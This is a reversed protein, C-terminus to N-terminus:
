EFNYIPPNRPTDTFVNTKIPNVPIYTVEIDSHDIAHIWGDGNPGTVEVGFDHNPIMNSIIRCHTAFGPDSIVTLSDYNFESSNWNSVIVLDINAISVANNIGNSIDSILNSGYDGNNADLTYARCDPNRNILVADLFQGNMDPNNSYIPSDDESLIIYLHIERHIQLYM